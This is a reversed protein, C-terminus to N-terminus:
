SVFDLGYHMVVGNKMPATLTAQTTFGAV